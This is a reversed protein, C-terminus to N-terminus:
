TMCRLLPASTFTSATRMMMTASTMMMTGCNVLQSASLSSEAVVMVRVARRM